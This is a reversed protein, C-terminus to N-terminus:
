VFAVEHEAGAGDQFYLKNDAKPYLAGWSGIATPTTIEPIHFSCGWADQVLRIGEEAGAILSLRDLGVSGIGTDADDRRANVTPNTGSATENLLRPGTTNTARFEDGVYIFRQTGEIAIALTNDASEYLGTNGDGFALTPTAADDEQPLLLQTGAVPTVGGISIAADFLYGGANNFTLQDSTNILVDAADGDSAIFNIQGSTNAADNGLTLGNSVNIDTAYVVPVRNGSEGIDGDFRSAETGDAFIQYPGNTVTITGAGSTTPAGSIYLGALRTITASLTNGLSTDFAGIRVGHVDPHTSADIAVFTPAIDIPYGTGNTNLTVTDDIRLGRYTGTATLTRTLIIATNALPATDIGLIDDIRWGATGGDLTGLNNGGTTISQAGNAELVGTSLITWVLGIADDSLGDSVHFEINTPIRNTAITGTSVFAVRAGVTNYDTGDHGIGDLRFLEDGTTIVGASRAKVFRLEPAANNATERLFTVIGFDGQIELDSFSYNLAPSSGGGIIVADSSGEVFLASEDTDGEVRFDRDDGDENFVVSVDNYRLVERLASGAVDEAVNFIVQGPVQNGGITGTSEVTIRAVEQALDTGDDGFFSIQGIDDGSVIVTGVTGLAGRSKGFHLIAPSTDASYRQISIGTTAGTGMVETILASGGTAVAAAHGILIEQSTTIRMAEATNSFLIPSDSLLVAADDSSFTFLFYSDRDADIVAFGPQTLGDFLTLDVGNIGIGISLIAVDVAGASVFDGKLHHANDDTTDWAWSFPDGTGLTLEDDDDFIVAAGTQGREGYM